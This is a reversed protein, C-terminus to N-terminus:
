IVYWVVACIKMPRAWAPIDPTSDVRETVNVSDDCVGKISSNLHTSPAAKVLEVADRNLSAGHGQM